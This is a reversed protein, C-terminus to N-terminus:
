RSYEAEIEWQCYERYAELFEEPTGCEECLIFKELMEKYSIKEGNDDTVFIHWGQSLGYGCETVEIRRRNAKKIYGIDRCIHAVKKKGDAFILTMYYNGISELKDKKIKTM